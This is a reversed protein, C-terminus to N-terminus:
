LEYIDEEPDDWIKKLAEQQLILSSADVGSETQQSYKTSLYTAYDLLEEIKSEPLRDIIRDIKLKYEQVALM